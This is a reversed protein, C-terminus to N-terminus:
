NDNPHSVLVDKAVSPLRPILWRFVLTAAIGGAFQAAIFLPADKDQSRLVSSM